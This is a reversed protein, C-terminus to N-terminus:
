GWQYFTTRKARPCKKKLWYTSFDSQRFFQEKNGFIEGIRLLVLRVFPTRWCVYQRPQLKPGCVVAMPQRRIGSAAAAERLADTPEKTNQKARDSTTQCDNKDIVGKSVNFQTRM